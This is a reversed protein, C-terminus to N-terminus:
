GKIFCTVPCVPASPAEFYLELTRRAHVAAGPVSCTAYSTVNRLKRNIKKRASNLLAQLRIPGGGCGSIGVTGGAGVGSSSVTSNSARESEDVCILLTVTAGSGSIAPSSLLM